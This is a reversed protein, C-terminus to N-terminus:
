RQKGSAQVSGLVSYPEAGTGFADPLRRHGPDPDAAQWGLKSGSGRLTHGWCSVASPCGSIPAGPSPKVAPRFIFCRVGM